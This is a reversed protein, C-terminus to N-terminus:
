RNGDKPNNYIDLETAIITYVQERLTVLDKETMGITSIPSHVVVRSTGPRAHTRLLVGHQFLKWNNLFTIPVIPVQKDIALKFAGNKFRHLTGLNTVIGGEPFIFVSHGKDIEEGAQVFSKHAGRISKRDVLINMKKFFINVLPVKALEKKGMSVFYHPITVYASLVDLYSVHNACYVSPTAMNKIDYRYDIKTIVGVSLLITRTWVRKMNFALPFWEERSLLVRFFPYGILLMLFGNVLFFTKWVIAIIVKIFNTV